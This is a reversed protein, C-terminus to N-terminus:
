AEPVHNPNAMDINPLQLTSQPLKHHIGWEPNTLKSSVPEQQEGQTM